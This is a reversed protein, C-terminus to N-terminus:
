CPNQNSGKLFLEKCCIVKFQATLFPMQRGSALSYLLESPLNEPLSPYRVCRQGVAGDRREMFFTQFAPLHTGRTSGAATSPGSRVTWPRHTSGSWEQAPLRVPGQAGQAGTRAASARDDRLCCRNEPSVGRQLLLQTKVILQHQLLQAVRAHQLRHPDPPRAVAGLVCELHAALAHGHPTTSPPGGGERLCLAERSCSGLPSETGPSRRGGASKAEIGPRERDNPLHPLPSPAPKRPLPPQAWALGPLACHCLAM